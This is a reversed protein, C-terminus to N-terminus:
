SMLSAGCATVLAQHATKGAGLNLSDVKRYQYIPLQVTISRLSVSKVIAKIQKVMAEPISNQSNLYLVTIQSQQRMLQMLACKAKWEM